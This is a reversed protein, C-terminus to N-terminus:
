RGQIRENACWEEFYNLTYSPGPPMPNGFDFTNMEFEGLEQTSAMPFDIHTQDPDHTGAVFPLATQPNSDNEMLAAGYSNSPDRNLHAFTGLASEAAPERSGRFPNTEAILYNFASNSENPPTAITDSPPTPESHESRSGTSERRTATYGAGQELLGDQMKQFDEQFDEVEGNKTVLVGLDKLIDHTLELGEGTWPTGAQARRKIEQFGAIMREHQRELMEVYGKPYVKDSSRKREGFECVSNDSKCRSCPSAGDCKSKKMRCRDCAKCVRKRGGDKSSAQSSPRKPPAMNNIPSHTRPGLTHSHYSLTTHTINKPYFDKRDIDNYNLDNFNLCYLQNRHSAM